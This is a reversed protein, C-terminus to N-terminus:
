RTVPFPVFMADCSEPKGSGATGKLTSDEGKPQLNVPGPGFTIDAHNVKYKYSGPNDTFLVNDFRIGLRHTNDYANLLVTGGGSIRVNHLTIDRFIPLKNGQLSGAASYETSIDIPRSSNRICVNDYTVDHVLGGRSANSKIRIGSTTGDLSLDTVLLNSVTGMTESGISMGHGWYFHNHSVTMNTVPGDGAKIAINDDGDRIFSHTVTINKSASPDFGDTNRAGTGPTDIKMGWVTIGDSHHPVVHFNASNKLTIRYFTLNDCSETTILRPVEQSGGKRADEALDWWSKGTEKGDVILKAGGRGDIVGDGMIGINPAHSATILPRCGGKKDDVIGCSGPSKEYQRPDRSGFLTVGADVLLTVGTKLEIPGSLFAKHQGDAVLKVANGPACHNIADQLRATDLKTEDAFAIPAPLEAKLVVCAPPFVPEKVTRTDQAGAAFAAGAMTAAIVITKVESGGPEM